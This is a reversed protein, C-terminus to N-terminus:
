KIGLYEVVNTLQAEVGTVLDQMEQKDYYSDLLDDDDASNILPDYDTDDLKVDLISMNYKKMLPFLESVGIKANDEIVVGIKDMDAIFSIINKPTYAMDLDNIKNFVVKIIAPDVGSAVISAISEKTAELVRADASVPFLIMTFGARTFFSEQKALQILQLKFSSSGSDVIVSEKMRRVKKFCADAQHSAFVESGEVKQFPDESELHMTMANPIFLRLLNNTLMTKGTRQERSVLLIKHIIEKSNKM